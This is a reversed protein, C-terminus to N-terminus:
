PLALTVTSSMTAGPAIAVTLFATKSVVTKGKKATVLLSTTSVASPFAPVQGWTLESAQVTASQASGNATSLTFTCEVLSYGPALNLNAQVRWDGVPTPALVLPPLSVAVEAGPSVTFPASRSQGAPLLAAADAFAEVIAEYQGLPLNLAAFGFRGGEQTPLVQGYSAATVLDRVTVRFAKLDTAVYQAQRAPARMTLLVWGHPGVAEVPRACGGLAVTGLLSLGIGAQRVLDWPRPM